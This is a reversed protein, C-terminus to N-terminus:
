LTLGAAVPSGGHGCRGEAGLMDAAEDPRRFQEIRDLARRAPRSSAAPNRAASSSAIRPM